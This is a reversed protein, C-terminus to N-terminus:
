YFLKEREEIRASSPVLLKDSFEQKIKQYAEWSDVEITLTFGTLLYGGFDKFYELVAVPVKFRVILM